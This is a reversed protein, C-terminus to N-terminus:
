LSYRRHIAVVLKIGSKHALPGLLETALNCTTEGALQGFFLEPRQAQLVAEIQLKMGIHEADGNRIAFQRRCLHALEGENRAAVVLAIAMERRPLVDLVIPRAEVVNGVQQRMQGLDLHMGDLGAAIADPVHRGIVQGTDCRVLDIVRPDPALDDALPRRQM